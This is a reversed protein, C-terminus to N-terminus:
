SLSCGVLMAQRDLFIVRRGERILYGADTLIDFARYLSARGLGLSLSLSNMPMPLIFESVSSPSSADLWAALKREASGASLIAIRRNLFRIRDSLFSIYRFAAGSDSTLIKRVAEESVSLIVTYETACVRSVFPESVFLNAVGLTDSAGLTRLLLEHSDDKTYVSAMGSLLIYLSHPHGDDIINEGPVFNTLSCKGAVSLLLEQSCGSFLFHEALIKAINTDNILDVSM